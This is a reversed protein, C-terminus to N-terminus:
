YRTDKKSDTDSSFFYFLLPYSSRGYEDTLPDKVLNDVANNLIGAFAFSSIYLSIFLIIHLFTVWMAVRPVPPTPLDIAVSKESSLAETVQSEEWGAKILQSKIRGEPIRQKRLSQIYNELDSNIM